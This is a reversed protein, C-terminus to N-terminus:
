CCETEAVFSAFLTIERIMHHRCKCAPQTHAVICPQAHIVGDPVHPLNRGGIHLLMILLHPQLSMAMDGGLALDGGRGINSDIVRDPLVRYRIYARQRIVCHRSKGSVNATNAHSRLLIPLAWCCLTKLTCALSSSLALTSASVIWNIASV